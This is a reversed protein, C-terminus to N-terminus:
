QGQNHPSTSRPSLRIAKLTDEISRGGDLFATFQERASERDRGLTAFTAALQDVVLLRLDEMYPLQALSAGKIQLDFTSATTDITVSINM